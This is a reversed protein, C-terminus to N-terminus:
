NLNIVDVGNSKNIWICDYDGKKGVSVVSDIKNDLNMEDDYFLVPDFYKPCKWGYEHIVAVGRRYDNPTNIVFAGEGKHNVVAISLVKQPEGKTKAKVQKALKSTEMGATYGLYYKHVDTIITSIIFAGFSLAIMKSFKMKDMALGFVIAIFSNSPHPSIEGARTVLAVSSILLIILTLSLFEQFSDLFLGKLLKVIFMLGTLSLFATIALLIWEKYYIASTDIPFLGAIYLVFFSKIFNALSLTHASNDQNVSVMNSLSSVTSADNNSVVGSVLDPKYYVYLILFIAIPICCILLQRILRFWKVNKFYFVGNLSKQNMLEYFAPAVPFWVFGGDKWFMAILAFIFWGTYRFKNSSIYCCVSLLGWFTTSVQALGDGPLLGGMSTTCFLFFLSGMFSSNESCTLKKCLFYVMFACGVHFFASCVHMIVFYGPPYITLVYYAYLDMMPRWFGRPLLICDHAWKQWHMEGLRCDDLYNIFLFDDGHPRILSTITALIVFFLIYIYKKKM